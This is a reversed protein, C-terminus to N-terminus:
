RGESGRKFITISGSFTSLDLVASGDGFTGRLTKSQLMGPGRRRNDPGTQEQNKLAIDSRVSGNFSNADVEFGTNGDVAVKVSGSHTSFKYRGNRALPGEYIVHGSTTQADIRECDTDVLTITGSVVGVNLRRAKVKNLTVTGSMSGADIMGDSKADTIHVSGSMTKATLVRAAREIKIHGSMAELSLEGTIDSVSIGGSMSNVRVRTGAPATVNYTVGVHINRHRRSDDLHQYRSRVEVRGPREMVDIKVFGLMERAADETAGYAKKVADITVDNGGGRTITIAGSMNQIDLEGQPGLKVTKSFTETQEFKRDEGRREVRTEVRQQQTRREEIIRRREDDAKKRAEARARAREEAASQPAALAPAAALAMLITFVVSRTM